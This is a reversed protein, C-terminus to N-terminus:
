CVDVAPAVTTLMSRNSTTALAIADGRSVQGNDNPQVAEHGSGDLRRARKRGIAEVEARAGTKLLISAASSGDFSKSCQSKLTL